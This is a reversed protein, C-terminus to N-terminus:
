VLALVSLFDLSKSLFLPVHLCSFFFLFSSLSSSPFFFFFHTAPLLFSVSFFFYRCAVFTERGLDTKIENRNKRATTQPTKERDSDGGGGGGNNSRRMGM